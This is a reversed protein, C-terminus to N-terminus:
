GLWAYCCKITVMKPADVNSPIDGDFIAAIKDNKIGLGGSEIIKGSADITVILANKVLIDFQM